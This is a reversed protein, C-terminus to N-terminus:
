ITKHNMRLLINQVILFFIDILGKTLGKTSILKVKRSLDNNAKHLFNYSWKIEQWGKCTKNQLLM